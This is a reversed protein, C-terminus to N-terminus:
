DNAAGKRRPPDKFRGKLAARGGKLYGLRFAVRMIDWILSTYDYGVRTNEEYYKIFTDVYDMNLDYYSNVEVAMAQQFTGRTGPRYYRSLPAIRNM